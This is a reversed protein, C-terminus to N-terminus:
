PRSSLWLYLLLLFMTPVHFSVDNLFVSMKIPVLTDKQWSYALFGLGIGYWYTYNHMTIMLLAYKNSSKNYLTRASYVWFEFGSKALFQFFLHRKVYIYLFSLYSCRTLCSAYQYQQLIANAKVCSAIYYSKILIAQELSGRQDYIYNTTNSSQM